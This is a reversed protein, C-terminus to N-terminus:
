ILDEFQREDEDLLLDTDETEEYQNVLPESSILHTHEDAM